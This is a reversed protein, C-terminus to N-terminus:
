TKGIKIELEAMLYAIDRDGKVSNCHGCLLQFNDIHDTGGRMRSVIHDVEFVKFPFDMPLGRM